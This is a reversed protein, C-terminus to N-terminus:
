WRGPDPRAESDPLFLAARKARRMVTLLSGFIAIALVGVIVLNLPRVRTSGPESSDFDGEIVSSGQPVIGNPFKEGQASGSGMPAIGSHFDRGRIDALVELYLTGYNVSPELHSNESFENWSILGIADPSSQGAAQMQRRLTAGDKREVVRTGDLLRADFGPAAPAIWLGDRAHVAEAMADLKQQYGPFTEPDVSSWYYANGDVLDALREYGDVNKESALLFLRDGVQKRVTAVDQRSYEWTGSWIMLPRPFVNFAPDKGYQSVFDDLDAEIKAIDLPQRKFDLGQYIVALKFDEEDAIAVLQKLRRDLKESSKWSVIFGDIGAQKALRIHERMVSKDDSSYLGLVPYDNKARDWSRADFWIYYYALVPVADTKASTTTPAASCLLGVLLFMVTGIPGVRWLRQFVRAAASHSSVQKRESQM